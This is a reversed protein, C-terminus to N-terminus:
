DYLGKFINLFNQKVDVKFLEIQKKYIKNRIDKDFLIKNLNIESKKTDLFNFELACENSLLGNYILEQNSATKAVLIPIGLSCSEYAITSASCIMVDSSTVENILDETGLNNMITVNNYNSSNIFSNNSAGIIIKIKIDPISSCIDLAKQTYNDPDAGGFCILVTKNSKSLLQKPKCNIFQERLMLYNTGLFLKTYNNIKYSNENIGIAHNIIVDAPYNSSMLDDVYVVKKQKSRLLNQYKSDFYYGDLVMIEGLDYYENIEKETYLDQENLKLELIDDFKNEVLKQIDISNNNIVLTRHYVDKCYSSISSLRSLHGWGIKSNAEGRFIIKKLSM